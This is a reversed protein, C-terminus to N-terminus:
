NFCCKVQKSHLNKEKEDGMSKDSNLGVQIYTLFTISITERM